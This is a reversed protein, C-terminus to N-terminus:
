GGPLPCLENVKFLKSQPYGVDGMSRRSSPEALLICAHLIASLSLTGTLLLERSTSILFYRYVLM